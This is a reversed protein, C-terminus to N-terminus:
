QKLLSGAFSKGNAIIQVLYLGPVFSNVDITKLLEVSYTRQQAILQGMENKIYITAEGKIEEPLAINVIGFAPNPYISISQNASVPAVGSVDSSIVQITFGSRVENDGTQLSDPLGVWACYQSTMNSDCVISLCVYYIGNQSYTHTPYQETSFTSDGFDWFYNNGGESLDTLWVTSTATDISSVEFHAVCNGFVNTSDGSYYISDCHTASCNSGSVTLCVIYYGEAPYEHYATTQDSTAGDGFDWYYNKTYDVVSPHFSVVDNYQYAYFAAYCSDGSSIYVSDCTYSSCMSDNYSLCIAYAGPLDYHHTPAIETSTTGDGFTWYFSGGGFNGNSPICTVTNGIIQFNITVVCNSDQVLIYYCM